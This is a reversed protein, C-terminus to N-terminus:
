FTYGVLIIPTSSIPQFSISKVYDDVDKDYNSTSKVNKSKLSLSSFSPGIGVVISIKNEFFWQYGANLFFNIGSYTYTSSDKTTYEITASNISSGVFYTDCYVCNFAYVYYTGITNAQSTEINNENITGPFSGVFLGLGSNKTLSYDFGNFLILSRVSFKNYEDSYNLNGNTNKTSNDNSDNTQAYLYSVSWIIFFVLLLLIKYSNKM